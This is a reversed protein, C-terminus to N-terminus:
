RSWSELFDKGRESVCVENIVFLPHRQRHPQSLAQLADWFSGPYVLNETLPETSARGKRPTMLVSAWNLGLCGGGM